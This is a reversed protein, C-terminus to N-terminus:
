LYPSLFGRLCSVSNHLLQNNSTYFRGLYVAIFVPHTIDFRPFICPSINGMKIRIPVFIKHSAYPSSFISGWEIHCSSIFLLFASSVPSQYGKAFFTSSMKSLIFKSVWLNSLKSLSIPSVFPIIFFKLFTNKFIYNMPKNIHFHHVEPVLLYKNQQYPLKLLAVETDQFNPSHTAEGFISPFYFRVLINQLPNQHPNQIATELPLINARLFNLLHKSLGKMLASSIIEFHSPLNIKAPIPLLPKIELFIEKLVDLM